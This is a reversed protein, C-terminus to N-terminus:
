KNATPSFAMDGPGWEAFAVGPIKANAPWADAKEAYEDATM